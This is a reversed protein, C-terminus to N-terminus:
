VKLRWFLEGVEEKGGGVEVGVEVRREVENETKKM